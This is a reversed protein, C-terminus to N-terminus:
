YGRVQVEYMVVTGGPVLANLMIAELDKGGQTLKWSQTEDLQDLRPLGYAPLLVKKDGPKILTGDIEKQQFDTVIVHQTYTAVSGTAYADTASNYDGRTTVTVYAYSGFKQGKAYVKQQLKSYDVM